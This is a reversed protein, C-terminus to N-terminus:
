RAGPFDHSHKITSEPPGGSGPPSSIGPHHGRDHHCNPKARERECGPFVVSGVVRITIGDWYYYNLLGQDYYGMARKGATDGFAGLGACNPLGTVPNIQNCFKVCGEATHVFGDMLIPRNVTYDFRSVDGYSQLWASSDDDICSSTFKFLSLSQGEDNVNGIKTLKDDIGDM